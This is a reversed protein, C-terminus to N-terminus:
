PVDIKEPVGIREHNRVFAHRNTKKNACENVGKVAMCYKSHQAIMIVMIKRIVGQSWGAGGV